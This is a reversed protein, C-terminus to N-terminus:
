SRKKMRHKRAFERPENAITTKVIGVRGEQSVAFLDPPVIQFMPTASDLVFTLMLVHQGRVLSCCNRRAYTQKYQVVHDRHVM